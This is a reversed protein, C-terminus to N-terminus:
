LMRGLREAHERLIPAFTAKMAPLSIRATFAAVSMAARVRGQSDRVPVAMTRMGLELEEDTYAMQETRARRVRERIEAVSTLTNPTSARLDARELVADVQDDPLGALLVRGTASAHAPLRAGLRVGASVIRQADARAVFVAEDSELM